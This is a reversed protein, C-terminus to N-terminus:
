NCPPLTNRSGAHFPLSANASADCPTKVKTFLSISPNSVAPCFERSTNPSVSVPQASSANPLDLRWHPCFPTVAASAIRFGCVNFPVSPATITSPVLVLAGTNVGFVAVKASPEKSSTSPLPRLPAAANVDWPPVSFTSVPALSSISLMVCPSYAIVDPNETLLTCPQFPSLREVGSLRMPSTSPLSASPEIFTCAVARREDSTKRPSERTLVISAMQPLPSFSVSLPLMPM